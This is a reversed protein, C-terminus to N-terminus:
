ATGLPGWLGYPSKTEGSDTGTNAPSPDTLFEVSGDEKLIHFGGRDGGFNQIHEAISKDSPLSAPIESEPLGREESVAEVDRAINYYLGAGGIIAIFFMTKAVANKTVEPSAATTDTDQPTQYPNDREM